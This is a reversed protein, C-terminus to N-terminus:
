IVATIEESDSKGVVVLITKVMTKLERFFSFDEISRLNIKMKESLVMKLYKKDADAANTLMKEVDKYEISAESTAGAPLLLTAMMENTYKEVYKVVEPRTGVFSMSGNLVNIIQPLEDFSIKRFYKGIKTIRPDSAFSYTSGDENRIDPANVM